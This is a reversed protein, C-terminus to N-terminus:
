DCEQTLSRILTSCHSSCINTLIFTRCLNKITDSLINFTDINAGLIRFNRHTYSQFLLSLWTASVILCGIYYIAFMMYYQRVVWVLFSFFITLPLFWLTGLVKFIHNCTNNKFKRLDVCCIFFSSFQIVNYTVSSTICIFFCWVMFIFEFLTCYLLIMFTVILFFFFFLSFIVVLNFKWLSLGVLKLKWLSHTTFLRLWYM